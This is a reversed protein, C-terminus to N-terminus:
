HRRAPYSALMERFAAGIAVRARALPMAEGPVVDHIRSLVGRWVVEGTARDVMASELDALFRVEDGPDLREQCPDHVVPETLNEQALDLQVVLDAAGPLSVLGREALALELEERLLPKLFEPLNDMALEFTAYRSYDGPCCTTVAAGVGLNHQACGGPLLLILALTLAALGGGRCASM